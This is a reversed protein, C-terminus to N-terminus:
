GKMQAMQAMRMGPCASSYWKEGQRWFIIVCFGSSRTMSELQVLSTYYVLAVLWMEKEGFFCIFFFEMSFDSQTIWCTNYTYLKLTFNWTSVSPMGNMKGSPRPSTIHSTRPYLPRPITISSLRADSLRGQLHFVFYINNEWIIELVDIFLAGFAFTSIYFPGHCWVHIM